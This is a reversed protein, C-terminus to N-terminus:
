FDALASNNAAKTPFLRNMLAYSQMMNGANNAGSALANAGGIQGAASAAAGSTLFNNANQTAQTGYLGTQAASTQGAGVLGMLKNYANTKNAQDINFQTQYTNDALGTAYKAADKLASGSVGLGRASAANQVGLLGQDRTFQYGPTNQLTAMDPNFPSTLGPLRSQLTTLANTGADRYPSLDSRVQAQQDLASQSAQQGAALQSAGASKANIASLASTGATAATGILMATPISISGM